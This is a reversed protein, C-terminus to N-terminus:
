DLPYCRGAFTAALVLSGFKVTTALLKDMANRARCIKRAAYGDLKQWQETSLLLRRLLEDSTDLM